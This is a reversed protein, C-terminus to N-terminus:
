ISQYICHLVISFILCFTIVVLGFDEEGSFAWVIILFGMFASYVIATIIFLHAVGIIGLNLLYLAEIFLIIGVNFIFLFAIILILLFKVIEALTVSEDSEKPEVNSGSM